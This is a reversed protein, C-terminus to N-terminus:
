LGGQQCHLYPNRPLPIFFPIPPHSDPPTTPLYCYYSAPLLTFAHQSQSFSSSPFSSHGVDDSHKVPCEKKSSPSIKPLLFSNSPPDPISNQYFM